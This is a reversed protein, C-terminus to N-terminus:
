GAAHLGEVKELAEQVQRQLREAKPYENLVRTSLEVAVLDLTDLLELTRDDRM